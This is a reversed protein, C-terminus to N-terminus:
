STDRPRPRKMFLKASGYVEGELARLEHEIDESHGLKSTWRGNPLQRAAHTPVTASTAFLAVKEFGAELSDDVCAAYGLTQFAAVFAAVTVQREVGAPWFTRRVDHFPWWWDTVVAAAWAICNYSFDAPSTIQFSSTRLGPFAALLRESM